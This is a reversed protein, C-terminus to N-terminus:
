VTTEGRYTSEKRSLRRSWIFFCFLVFSFLDGQSFTSIVEELSRCCTGAVVITALQKLPVKGKCSRKKLLKFIPLLM